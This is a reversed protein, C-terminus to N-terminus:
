LYNYTIKKRLINLTSFKSPTPGPRDGCNVNQEFDCLGTMDNFLLNNPCPQEIVIDDWCNLYNSCSNMSPFQGRAALCGPPPIQQGIQGQEEPRDAESPMDPEKTQGFQFLGDPQNPRLIVSMNNEPFGPYFQRVVNAPPQNPSSNFVAGM